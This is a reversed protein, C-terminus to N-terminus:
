QTIGDTVIRDDMQSEAGNWNADSIDGELPRGSFADVLSGSSRALVHRVCVRLYLGSQLSCRMMPYFDISPQGTFTEKTCQPFLRM